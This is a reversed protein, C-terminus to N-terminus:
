EVKGTKLPESDTPLVLFSLLPCASLETIQDFNNLSPLPRRLWEAQLYEMHHIRQM